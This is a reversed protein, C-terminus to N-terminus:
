KHHRCKNEIFNYIYIYHHGAYKNKVYDNELLNYCYMKAYVKKVKIKKKKLSIDTKTTNTESQHLKILNKFREYIFWIM